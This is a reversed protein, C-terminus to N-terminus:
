KNQKIKLILHGIVKKLTLVHKKISSKNLFIYYFYKYFYQVTYLTKESLEAYYRITQNTYEFLDPSLQLTQLFELMQIYKSCYEQIENKSPKNFEKQLNNKVNTTIQTAHQRYRISCEPIYYIGNGLSAKFAFYYDHFSFVTFFESSKIQDKLFVSPALITSGQVFNQHCLHKFIDKKNEPIESFRLTEKLTYGLSENNENVLLSNTCVLDYSGIYKLSEAIKWPEWIDDQDSLAIYDGTCLSIAKIFNKFFGHNDTNRYAKVRNDSASYEQVIKYTSDKSCDDVIILEINKYTQNLISDIQDKLFREGNYTTMAISVLPEKIM